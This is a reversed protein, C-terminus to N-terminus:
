CIDRRRGNLCQWDNSSSQEPSGEARDTQLAPKALELLAALLVEAGRAIDELSAEEAPNHSIGERCPIFIMGTPTLHAMNMADHGAGSPMLMYPVDLRRCVGELTAIIGPHLPVPDEATLEEVQANVRRRRAIEALDARIGAVARAISEKDIGRVDIGVVAKGPVVNMAGPEAKLIGVTAVSQQPAEARGWREVALVLEAAAALADRRLGMPTAGSHDARGRLTVRLRTPAAIATVIGIKNGTEELVRGQEIHLELFAKFEEPRRRAAGIQAPDVGAGALAEPLSVGAFDTLGAWEEPQARGTLAKSGLTAVGFRSSEESVFVIVELPHRTRMGREKLTRLAAVAALVGAVGDYRGGQPVSDLHSGCAVAPLTDDEGPRRAILNGIADRRVDAGLAALKEAVQRHLEREEPSFGLRTVGPGPEAGVAALRRLDKELAAVNIM